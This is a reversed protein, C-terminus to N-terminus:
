EKYSRDKPFAKDRNPDRVTSGKWWYNKSKLWRREARRTDWWVYLVLTIGIGISVLLETM